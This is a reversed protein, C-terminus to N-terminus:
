VAGLQPQPQIHPQHHELLARYGGFAGAGCLHLGAHRDITGPRIIAHYKHRNFVYAILGTTFGGAALAVGTAVDVAVWLGWPYQNNLNSVYGIGYIFRAIIFAAAL